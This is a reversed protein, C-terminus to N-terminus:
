KQGLLCNMAKFFINLPWYFSFLNIFALLPKFFKFHQWYNYDVVQVKQMEIEFDSSQKYNVTAKTTTHVTRRRRHAKIGIYVSDQM